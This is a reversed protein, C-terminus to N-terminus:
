SLEVQQLVFRASFRGGNFQKCCSACAVKRTIRRVRQVEIKCNPCFYSWKRKQQVRPLPLRHTVPEGPIGLDACAVQWEVGHPAIRRRGVRAYALLHALEHLLTRRVEDLGFEILRPNLDVRCEPWFARGATSRMRSNWRVLVRPQIQAGGAVQDLSAVCSEVLDRCQQALEDSHAAM